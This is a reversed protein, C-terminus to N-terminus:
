LEGHTCLGEELAKIQLAWFRSFVRCIALNGGVFWFGPHGSRRWVGRLEGAADLGWVDGVRDALADGFLKRATTRMNQYGTAFVIEDAPLEDGDAFVVSRERIESIEQGQKIKIKGDVILQSAGVDIYYGGGRQLYKLWLGADDPGRDLKFGAATLGSLTAKDIDAMKRTLQICLTKIVANPAGFFLIDADQTAPGDECYAGGLMLDGLTKRDVVHTSSRQVMTVDYGNEFYDQALDHASNCSGVVIAKKGKGDEAVETFQSSHVLRNGKFRDLGKIHSPFNIEGSHGTAQVIHRPHFVRTETKGNVTRELSVTWRLAADDWSSHTLKTDTWVNLELTKAYFEFWEAL